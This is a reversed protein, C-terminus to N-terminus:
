PLLRLLAAVADKGQRGCHVLRGEADLVVIAWRSGYLADAATRATPEVVPFIAEVVPEDPKAHANQEPTRQSTDFLVVAFESRRPHEALAALAPRVEPGTSLPGGWEDFAVLLPRGRMRALTVNAAPANRAVAVEWDPLVEGLLDFPRPPVTIPGLDYEARGAAAVATRWPAHGHGFGLSLRYTGAPLPWAFEPAECLATTTRELSRSQPLEVAMAVRMPGQPREITTRLQGRLVVAPLLRIDGRVSAVHGAPELEAQVFVVLRRDASYGLLPTEFPDEIWTGRLRGQADSRLPQRADAAACGMSGSWRGAVCEWRDAFEANAVPQGQPDIVRADVRVGRTTQAALATVLAM